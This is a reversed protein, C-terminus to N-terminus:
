IKLIELAQKVYNKVTYEEVTAKANESFNKWVVEPEMVREIIHLFEPANGAEFVFGNYENKVLESVGGIKSAIVPLGISFAEYIVTPSNEYCLSPVILYDAKSYQESLRARDM